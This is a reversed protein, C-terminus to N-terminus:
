QSLTIQQQTYMQKHASHSSSRVDFRRQHTSQQFIFGMVEGIYYHIIIIVQRYFLRIIIAREFNFLYTM